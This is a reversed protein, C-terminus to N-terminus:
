EATRTDIPEKKEKVPPDHRDYLLNIPIELMALDNLENALRVYFIRVESDLERRAASNRGLSGRMSRGMSSQSQQFAGVRLHEFDNSLRPAVSSLETIDKPGLSEVDSRLVREFNFQSITEDEYNDHTKCAAILDYREFFVKEYLKQLPVSFILREKLIESNFKALM